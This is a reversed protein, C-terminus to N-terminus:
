PPACNKPCFSKTQNEGVWRNRPCDMAWGHKQAFCARKPMKILLLSSQHVKYVWGAIADEHRLDPPEYNYRPNTPRAKAIEGSNKNQAERERERKQKELNNDKTDTWEFQLATKKRTAGHQAIM